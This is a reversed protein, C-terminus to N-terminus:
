QVSAPVFALQFRLVEVTDDRDTTAEITAIDDLVSKPIRYIVHPEGVTASTFTQEWTEWLADFEDPELVGESWSSVIERLQDPNGLPEWDHGERRALALLSTVAFQSVGEHNRLLVCPVGSYEVRM